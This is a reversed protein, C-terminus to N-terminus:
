LLSTNKAPSLTSFTSISSIFSTFSKSWNSSTESLYDSAQSQKSRMSWSDRCNQWNTTWRPIATCWFWFESFRLWVVVWPIAQISIRYNSTVSQLHISITNFFFLHKVVHRKFNTFCATM